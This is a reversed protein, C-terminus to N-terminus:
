GSGESERAAELVLRVVEGKGREGGRAELWPSPLESYRV